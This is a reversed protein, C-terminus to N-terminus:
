RAFLKGVFFKDAFLKGGFFKGVLFKSRSIKGHLIFKGVLFKCYVTKIDLSNLNDLMSELHEMKCGANIIAELGKPTDYVIFYMCLQLSPLTIANYQYVMIRTKMSLAFTIRQFKRPFKILLNVLGGSM